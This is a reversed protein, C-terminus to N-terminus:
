LDGRPRFTVRELEPYEGLGVVQSQRQPSTNHVENGGKVFCGITPLSSPAKCQPHFDPFSFDESGCWNKEIHNRKEMLQYSDVLAVRLM